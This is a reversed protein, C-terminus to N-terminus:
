HIGGAAYNVAAMMRDAVAPPHFRAVDSRAREAMANLRNAPTQLACDLAHRIESESNPRFTWGNEGPKVLEEVAQSFLSGLVPMGSAMAEPVVMGWEDSLTPFVLIGADRYVQPMKDYAVSGLLRLSLNPPAGFTAIEAHLPGSGALDLDVHRDPHHSAWDSLHRLFPLVGKLKTLMGSYLLRHRVPSTREAPISLFPDMEPMCHVFFLRERKVGFQNIYRAGSEGNVIVADANPLLVRRLWHRLNGRGQETVESVKAWIVLRSKPFLKRYVMAQLTRMGMEASIIVDPRFHMLQPITDYPVHITLPQTFQLPHKRSSRIAINRQLRVPLSGWEPPWERDFETAASLLIQFDSCRRGLEEYLRRRYPPIFNTLLAVRM